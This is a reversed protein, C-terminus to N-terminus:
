AVAALYGRHSSQLGPKYSNVKGISCTSAISTKRIESKNPNIFDFWPGHTVIM